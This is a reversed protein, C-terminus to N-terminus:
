YTILTPLSDAIRKFADRLEQATVAHFHKGGAVSAVEEMRQIDAEDSFTITFIQVESAAAIQAAYVPDTGTNHQGDTLVIMVRTAWSRALKKDALTKFGSLIGDGINTAGGQFSQSIQDLTLRIPVYNPQLQINEKSDSSYTSLSVHEQQPTSELLQLFLETSDCVDLWRAKPPVHQGFTWGLPANAPNYQGAVENAAFAMSGSRDLVLAIDIETQTSIASKTPRVVVPVGMTPFLPNLKLRGNGYVRVANPNSGNPDFEYRQDETYRTSVGFVIDVEDLTVVHNMIPNLSLLEEAKNIAAQQDGTMALTRGAARTAVDTTIQLDTRLHEMYVVNISYASVTLIVPMLLCILATTSGQRNCRWRNSNKGHQSTFHSKMM